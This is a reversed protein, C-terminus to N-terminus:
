RPAALLPVSRASDVQRAWRIKASQIRWADRKQWGTSGRGARPFSRASASHDRLRDVGAPGRKEFAELQAIEMQEVARRCRGLRTRLNALARKLRPDIPQDIGIPGEPVGDRTEIRERFLPRLIRQQTQAFQAEALLVEIHLDRGLEKQVIALHRQAFHDRREFANIRVRDAGLKLVNLVRANAIPDQVPEFRTRGLALGRPFRLDGHQAREQFGLREFCKKCM